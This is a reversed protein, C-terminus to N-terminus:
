CVLTQMKALVFSNLTARLSDVPIKDIVEAAFAYTLLNQASEINIGRSQLYFLEDADIQSVTAGHACKVNDAFIELQPKTDVRSKSSLLLNRSLQRSDTLQADKAVQIKGNFIAHAQDDVICKHLQYSSGHPFNHEISSHTDAIKQCAILTLGNLDTETQEAAQQVNLNHRSLHAGLTIAQSKYRSSRSQEISTTGIHFAANGEWQVKTHDFQANEGLWIETVANTFYPETSMGIYTEVLTLSSNAEAIVLCRPQSIISIESPSSSTAFVFQIPVEVVVGKPIFVVAVDSLCATNLTAFYDHADTHQSLHRDLNSRLLEFKGNRSLEALSGVIAGTPLNEIASMQPIFVGDIMTIHSQAAEPLIRDTIFQVFKRDVLADQHQAQRPIQFPHKQLAALNTYKWDEDKTNPISLNAIRDIGDQRMEKLWNALGLDLDQPQDLRQQLIQKAFGGDGRFPTLHRSFKLENVKASVKISM